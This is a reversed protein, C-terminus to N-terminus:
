YQTLDPFPYKQEDPLLANVQGILMSFESIGEAPSMSIGISEWLHLSHNFLPAEQQITLRNAKLEQNLFHEFAAIESKVYNEVTDTMLQPYPASLAQNMEDILKNLQNAAQMPDKKANDILQMCREITKDVFNQSLTKADKSINLFMILAEIHYIVNKAQIIM